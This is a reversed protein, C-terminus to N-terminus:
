EYIEKIKPVELVKDKELLVEQPELYNSHFFWAEEGTNVLFGTHYDLGLIYLGPDHGQFPSRRQDLQGYTLRTDEYVVATKDPLLKASRRSIDGITYM